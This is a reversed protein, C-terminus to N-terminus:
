LLEAPTLLHVDGDAAAARSRLEATFGTRAYVLHHRRPAARGFATARSREVLRDLVNEGVPERWWKCEGYFVGGDLLEGAVDIDFDAAWVQGVLRAPTPLVEDLYLRAHERCIWEFLGGM